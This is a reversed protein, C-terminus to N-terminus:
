ADVANLFKKKRIDFCVLAHVCYTIELDNREQVIRRADDGLKTSLVKFRIGMTVYAYVISATEEVGIWGIGQGEVRREFGGRVRNFVRDNKIASLLRRFNKALTSFM